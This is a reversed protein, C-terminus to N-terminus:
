NPPKGDLGIVTKTMSNLPGHQFPFVSFAAGTDLSPKGRARM